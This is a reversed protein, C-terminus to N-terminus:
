WIIQFLYKFIAVIRIIWVVQSGRHLQVNMKSSGLNYKLIM